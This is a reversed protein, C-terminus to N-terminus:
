RRNGLAVSLRAIRDHNSEGAVGAIPHLHRARLEREFGRQGAAVEGREGVEGRFDAGRRARREADRRELDVETAAVDHSGTVGDVYENRHIRRRERHLELVQLNAAGDDDIVAANV